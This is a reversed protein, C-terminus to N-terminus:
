TRFFSKRVFGWLSPPPSGLDYRNSSRRRQGEEEVEEVEEEEVLRPPIESHLM